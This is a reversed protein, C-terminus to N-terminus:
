KDFKKRCYYDCNKSSLLVPRKSIWLVVSQQSSHQVCLVFYWWLAFLSRLAQHRIRFGKGRFIESKLPFDGARGGTKMISRRYPVDLKWCLKTDKNSAYYITLINFNFCLSPQPYMRCELVVFFRTSVLHRKLYLLLPVLSLVAFSRLM